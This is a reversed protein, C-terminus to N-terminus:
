ITVRHRSTEIRCCSVRATIVFGKECKQIVKMSGWSYLSFKCTNKLIDFLLIHLSIESFKEVTNKTYVIKSVDRM